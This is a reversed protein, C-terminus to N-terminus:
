VTQKRLKLRLNGPESSITWEMPSPNVPGKVRDVHTWGKEATQVATETTLLVLFPGEWHSSLNEEKWSKILVKDRPQIKHISFELPTSQALM